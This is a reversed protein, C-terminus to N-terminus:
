GQVLASFDSAAEAACGSASGASLVRLEAVPPCGCSQAGQGQLGHRRLALPTYNLMLRTVDQHLVWASCHCLACLGRASLMWPTGHQFEELSPDLVWPKSSTGHSNM